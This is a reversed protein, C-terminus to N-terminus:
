SAVSRGSTFIVSTEDDDRKTWSLLSAATSASSIPPTSATATTSSNRRSIRAVSTAAMAMGNDSIGVKATIHYRLWDSLV